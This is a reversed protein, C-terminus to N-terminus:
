PGLVDKGFLARIADALTGSFDLQAQEVPPAESNEDLEALEDANGKPLVARALGLKEAEVLRPVARSVTRVEGTLGVEGFVVAEDPVSRDLYSSLIATAIGLDAAPEQVRMGGAVNIFVDHGTVELGTRKEIINLMLVVRNREVGVTTVQPPGYETRSVLAQVEVLLPRTGEVIPVVASGSADAPREELFTASPNVVERLGSSKMEFVGIEDTSGYRNKVARLVRHDLDSRGEFYLVTDVMHELVKPGAIAGQKTVHGILVTPIQLGKALQTLAGTVERLQVVSGPASSYESSTLTQISDIVLLDPAEDRVMREVRELNTECVVRIDDSPADIRDARLKLQSLSEEGSIYLTERGEDALTGALQLSLTSKGIGPDGGLLVVGGPVLGGGLVRDLESIHTTTRDAENEEVEAMRVPSGGEASAYGEESGGDGGDDATASTSSANGGERIEERLTNWDGCDKCRGQWKPHEYGCEECIYVPKPKAM